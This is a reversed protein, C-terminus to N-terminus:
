GKRTDTGHRNWRSRAAPKEKEAVLLLANGARPAVSVRSCPELVTGLTKTPLIPLTTTANDSHSSNQPYLATRRTM